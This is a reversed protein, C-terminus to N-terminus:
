NINAARSAFRDEAVVLNHLGRVEKKGGPKWGKQAAVEAERPNKRRRSCSSHFVFDFRGDKLRRWGFISGSNTRYRLGTSRAQCYVINYKAPSLLAQITLLCTVLKDEEMSNSWAQDLFEVIVGLSVARSAAMRLADDAPKCVLRLETLGSSFADPGFFSKCFFQAGM